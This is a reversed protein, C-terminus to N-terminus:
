TRRLWHMSLGMSLVVLLVSALGWLVSVETDRSELAVRSSLKAYVSNLDQANQARFFEGGTVKAVAQLTEEDVRAFFSYGEMGPIVGDLTGFAVTHVRVGLDAAQRAADMPDLGTTRRGDSLLIIAGSTYSGM